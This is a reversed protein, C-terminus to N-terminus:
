LLRLEVLEDITSNKMQGNGFFPLSIVRRDSSTFVDPSLPTLEIELLEKFDRKKNRGYCFIKEPNSTKICKRLEEKRAELRADLEPDLRGFERHWTDDTAKGAPIPSLETVFTQGNQRGLKHGVYEKVTARDRWAMSGARALMIKAMFRWVHTKPPDKEINMLVGNERLQLHAEHLDMVPEFRARASLNARADEDDMDGLGEQLGIFWVPANLNGYGLFRVINQIEQPSLDM